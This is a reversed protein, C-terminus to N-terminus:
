PGCEFGRGSWAIADLRMGLDRPDTGKGQARANGARDFRIELIHERDSPSQVLYARELLSDSVAFRELVKGDLTIAVQPTGAMVDLPVHGQLSLWARQGRAAPLIVVGRAGMWRFSRPGEREEGYWGEAFRIRPCLPVVSVEFYRQRAINWLAHRPYSFHRAGAARVVGERLLWADRDDPWVPPTESVFTEIRGHDLMLDSYPAMSGHVYFRADGRVSDRIWRVAQVPPSDIRSTVVLAPLTWAAAIIVLAGPIGAELSTRARM